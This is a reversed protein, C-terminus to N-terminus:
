DLRRVMTLAASFGFLHRLLGIHESGTVTFGRRAYLARARRNSDVVELRIEAHGRARGEDCLAEVLASGIGQGRAGPAVAIGDVLFRENDVEGQLLRLVARRWLAGFRGYVHRLDDPTGGALSGDHTKFGALGRLRGSGDSASLCHDPRLVRELFALARQEPGLVAGLKGGFAQWYIRAAEARQAETFGRRLTIGAPLTAGAPVRAVLGATAEALAATRLSSIRWRRPM